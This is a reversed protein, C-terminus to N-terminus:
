DKLVRFLAEGIQLLLFGPSYSEVSILELESSIVGQKLIRGNLDMLRYAEGVKFGELAFQDSFPNPYVRTPIAAVEQQDTTNSNSIFFFDVGSETINVNPDLDSIRFFFQMSNTVSIYDSLRISFPNWKYRNEATSGLKLITATETGNSVVVRLSDDPIAGHLCYIWASFNVYPDSYTTLNMQPSILFATGGDVDDWDPNPNPNNGTVYAREGCDFGADFGPASGSSTPNPIGREWKGTTANGSSLWSFDLEFDDYYGRDLEVTYSGTNEDILLDFCATWHGWKGVTVRYIEQYYLVFDEVGIGNTVGEHELLEAELRVQANSIPNGSVADLVILDFNFPPIPVMVVDKIAIEGNQLLVQHTQPYYGIKSYSVTYTGGNVIGTAYNGISNSFDVHDHAVIQVAVDAILNGTGDETITGELYAAQQYNPNLVFLGESIDTALVLGSPLFPYAGWCGDYSSTQLPYTDYHGVEVMNHPYTIDHVTVGDSYYSTILYNGFVHVNHPIVGSGPSSRVRDVEVINAPDSVDYAGLYAGSVEDTTFVFQGDDSPWVNHTFSSPTTKTGLLVPAQKDSVDVVSFFGNNIHALYLLNNRAYGDHCYWNDFVGVEIPNLPDTAVDLIIVGGNGRNAGFIYAYGFEDIYINHASSWNAGAPGFYYSTTLANSAPLPSLDIILLGNEAETTVYAYDGWTKLDRWVSNMGPEWFLEAPNAPDALSVVSTGKRAGVLAYEVGTEDVYGWIDNLDTNHLQQYNVRSVLSMNLQAETQNMTLLVVFIARLFQNIKMLSYIISSFYIPTYHVLVAM